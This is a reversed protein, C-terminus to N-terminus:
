PQRAKERAYLAEIHDAMDQYAEAKGGAWEDHRDSAVEARYWEAKNKAYAAAQGFAGALDLVRGEAVAALPPLPAMVAAMCCAPGAPRGCHPCPDALAAATAKLAAREAKLQNLIRQAAALDEDDEGPGMAVEAATVLDAKITEMASTERGRLWEGFSPYNDLTWLMERVVRAAAKTATTADEPIRVAIDECIGAEDEPGCAVPKCAFPKRDFCTGREGDRAGCRECPRSV